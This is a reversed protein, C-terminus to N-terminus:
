LLVVAGNGSGVAWESVERPEHGASLIWKDAALCAGAAGFLNQEVAVVLGLAFWVPIQASRLVAGIVRDKGVRAVIATRLKVRDAEAVQFGSAIEDILDGIRAAAEDPGIVAAREKINAEILVV